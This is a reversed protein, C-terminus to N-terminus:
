KKNLNDLFSLPNSMNEAFGLIGKDQHQYILEGESNFLFTAGRQTLFRDDPVYTQWNPLVELMNQLRLTALEFPRQYDKGVTKFLSGKISPFFKLNIEEESDFLQPANKDGKYGRFVEKLTGKSGIGACMLMLNLWANQGDDLFPLRWDLGQYLNLQQHISATPDIYLHETPFNTYECFKRGSTLNGIAIAKVKINKAQLKDAQKNLWWAYELTDFDGLQSWILVLTNKQISRDEPSIILSQKGDSVRQKTTTIFISYPDIKESSNNLTTTM